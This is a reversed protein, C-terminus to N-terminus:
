WTRGQNIANKEAFAATLDIGARNAIALLFNLSDVLEHALGQTAAQVDGQKRRAGQLHRVAKFIEGVEEGLFLCNHDLDTHLWGMKDELAHIYDQLQQLTPQEPLPLLPQM